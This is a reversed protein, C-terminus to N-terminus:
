CLPAPETAPPPLSPSPAGGIPGRSPGPLDPSGTPLGVGTGLTSSSPPPGTTRWDPAEAASAVVGGTGPPCHMVTTDTAACGALLVLGALFLGSRGRANM